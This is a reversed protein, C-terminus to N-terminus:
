LGGALARFIATVQQEAGQVGRGTDVLFHARRRKDRDPMQQALLSEFKRATMGPRAMVRARQVEPAATAVVVIHARDAAGTELLLPVDIMALQFGAARCRNLFETESDRVLPHMIAELRKL